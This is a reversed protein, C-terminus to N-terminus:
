PESSGAQGHAIYVARPLLAAKKFLNRAICPIFCALHACLPTVAGACVAVLNSHSRILQCHASVAKGKISSQVLTVLFVTTTYM